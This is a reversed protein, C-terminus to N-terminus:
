VDMWASWCVYVVVYMCAYVYMCVDMCACICLPDDTVKAVDMRRLGHCRNVCLGAMTCLNTPANRCSLFYNYAHYFEVQHGQGSMPIGNLSPSSSAATPSGKLSCAQGDKKRPTIGGLTSCEMGVVLQSCKTIGKGRAHDMQVVLAQKYGGEVWKRKGGLVGLQLHSYKSWYDVEKLRSAEWLQAVGFVICKFATLKYELGSASRRAARTTMYQYVTLLLGALDTEVGAYQAIGVKKSIGQATEFEDIDDYQLEGDRVFVRCGGHEFCFTMDDKCWRECVACLIKKANEVITEEEVEVKRGFKKNIIFECLIIVVGIISANHHQDGSYKADLDVGDGVRLTKCLLALRSLRIHGTDLSCAEELTTQLSSLPRSLKWDKLTGDDYVAAVLWNISVWLTCPFDDLVIPARRRYVSMKLDTNEGLIGGLHMVQPTFESQLESVDHWAGDWDVSWTVEEEAEGGGDVGMARNQRVPRFHDDIDYDFVIGSETEVLRHKDDGVSELTLTADESEVNWVERVEGTFHHALFQFCGLDWM